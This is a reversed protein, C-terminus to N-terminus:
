FGPALFRCCFAPRARLFTPPPRPGATGPPAPARHQDSTLLSICISVVLYCKVGMLHAIILSTLVGLTVSAAAPPAFQRPRQPSCLPPIGCLAVPARGAARGRVELHTGSLSDRSTCASRCVRVRANTVTESSLPVTHRVGPFVPHRRPLLLTFPDKNAPTSPGAGVVRSQPCLRPAPCSARFWGRETGTQFAHPPVHTHPFLSPPLM